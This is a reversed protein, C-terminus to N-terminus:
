LRYRILLKLFDGRRSSRTNNRNREANMRGYSQTELIGDCRWPLFLKISNLSLAKATTVTDL